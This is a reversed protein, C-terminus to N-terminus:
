EEVIIRQIFGHQNREVVFSKPHPQPKISLIDKVGKAIADTIPKLDILTTEKQALTKLEELNDLLTDQNQSLAEATATDPELRIARIAALLEEHRKAREIENLEEDSIRDM